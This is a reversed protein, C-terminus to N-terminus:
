RTFELPKYIYIENIVGQQERFEVFLDTGWACVTKNGSSSVTILEEDLPVYTEMDKKSLKWGLLYKAEKSTTLNDIGLVDFDANTKISQVYGNRLTFVTSGTSSTYSVHALSIKTDEKYESSELIGSPRLNNFYDSPNVRDGVSYKTGDITIAYKTNLYVSEEAGFVPAVKGTEETETSTSVDAPEENNTFNYDAIYMALEDLSMTYKPAIAKEKIDDNYLAFESMIHLNDFTNSYGCVQNDKVIFGLLQVESYGKTHVNSHYIRSSVGSLEIYVSDSLKCYVSGEFTYVPLVTEGIKMLGEGDNESDVCVELLASTGATTMMSAKIKMGVTSLMDGIIVSPIPAPSSPQSEELNDVKSGSCASLSLMMALSLASYASRKMAKSIHKM